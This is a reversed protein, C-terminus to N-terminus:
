SLHASTSTNSSVYSKKLWKAIRQLIEFESEVDDDFGPTDVVVVRRGTQDKYSFVELDKTCSEFTHGVINKETGTALQTFQRHSTLQGHPLRSGCSRVTSKGVGSM